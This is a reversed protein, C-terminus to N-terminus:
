NNSSDDPPYSVVTKVTGFDPNNADKIFNWQYIVLEFRVIQTTSLDRNALKIVEDFFSRQQRESKKFIDKYRADALAGIWQELHAEEKHGDSFVAFIKRYRILDDTSRLSYMQWATAPYMEVRAVWCLCTGFMMFFCVVFWKRHLVKLQNTSCTEHDHAIEACRRIPWLGSWNFFIAQILILDFFLLGQCILIGLHMGVTLLPIVLRALRSFLVLGYLLEVLLTILGLVSFLLIPLRALEHELGWEFQAPNLTDSLVIKKLNEGHWWFIGGNGIKSLGASTYACAVILWCFYRSWGYTAMSSQPVDTKTKKTLCQDISFGEGCRLFSLAVAIQLPLLCTHFLHSYERLIGGHILALITACPVSWRSRFGIMAFILAAFTIIKLTALASYNTYISEWNPIYHFLSMMGMQIRLHTPLHSVSPLDEWLLNVALIFFVWFRIGGLAEPTAFGVFRDFFITGLRNAFILIMPLVILGVISALHIRRWDDLYYQPPHSAQGQIVSNLVHWSEGHYADLILRPVLLFGFGVWAALLTLYFGMLFFAYRRNIMNKVKYRLCGWQNDLKIASLSLLIRERGPNIM